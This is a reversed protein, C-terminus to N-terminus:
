VRKAPPHYGPVRATHVTLHGSLQAFYGAARRFDLEPLLLM